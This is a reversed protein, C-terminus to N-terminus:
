SSSVELMSDSEQYIPSMRSASTPSAWRLCARTSMSQVVGRGKMEWEARNEQAFGLYEDSSVGFLGCDKLKKALPIVYNDFFGIENEYWRESPDAEEHGSLYARYKEEFLKENWKCYM